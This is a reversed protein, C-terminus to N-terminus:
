IYLNLGINTCTNQKVTFRNAYRIQIIYLLTDLDYIHNLM